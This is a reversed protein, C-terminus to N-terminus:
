WTLLYTGRCRTADPIEQCNIYISEAQFGGQIVRQGPQPGFRAQDMRACRYVVEIACTGTNTIDITVLPCRNGRPNRNAWILRNTTACPLTIAGRQMNGQPPQGRLTNAKLALLLISFVVASLIFATVRRTM